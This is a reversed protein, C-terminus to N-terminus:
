KHNANHFISLFSVFHLGFYTSECRINPKFSLHFPSATDSFLPFIQSDSLISNYNQKYNWGSLIWFFYSLFLNNWFYAKIEYWYLIREFNFFLISNRPYKVWLNTRCLFIVAHLRNASPLTYRIHCAETWLRRDNLEM